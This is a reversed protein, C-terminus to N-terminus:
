ISTAAFIQFACNTTVVKSRWNHFILLRVTRVASTPNADGQEAAAKFEKYATAYDCRDYAAKGEDFGAYAIAHFGALVAIVLLLKFEKM